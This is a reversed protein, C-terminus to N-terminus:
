TNLPFSFLVGWYRIQRYICSLAFLWISFRTCHSQHCCRWSSSSFFNYTSLFEIPFLLFFRIIVCHPFFQSINFPSHTTATWNKKTKNRAWKKTLLWRLKTKTQAVNVQLFTSSLFFIGCRTDSLVFVSFASLHAVNTTALVYTHM